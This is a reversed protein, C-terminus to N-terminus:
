FGAEEFETFLKEREPDDMGALLARIRTKSEKASLGYEPAKENDTETARVKRKTYRGTQQHRPKRRTCFRALHGKDGCEFCRGERQYRERQNTSLRDIDMADPDPESAAPQRQQLHTKSFPSRLGAVVLQFRRQQNDLRSAADYWETMKGPLIAMTYIRELLKHQLGRQYLQELAADETINARTALMKFQANYEDATGNQRLQLLKVRAEAAADMTIFAKTFESIFEAFWADKQEPGDRVQEYWYAAWESAQGKRMFSLVFLIKAAETTYIHGNLTLYARCTTIFNRAHSSDGDFPEPLNIRLEPHRKSSVMSEFQEATLQVPAQNRAHMSATTGKRNAENLDDQMKKMLEDRALADARLKEIEAALERTSAMTSDIRPTKIEDPELTRSAARKRPSEAGDPEQSDPNPLAEFLEKAWM